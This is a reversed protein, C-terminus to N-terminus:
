CKAAKEDRNLFRFKTRSFIIHHNRDLLTEPDINELFGYEDIKDKFQYIYNNDLGYHSIVDYFILALEENSMQAQLFNLYRHIHKNNNESDKWQEIVFNILNFIYRYYYGINAGKEKVYNEYLGGVYSEIKDLEVTNKTTQSLYQLVEQQEESDKLKIYKHKLGEYFDKLSKMENNTSQSIEKNVNERVQYLMSLLNFFTSEFRDKDFDKQSEIFQKRQEKFTIFLFLTSAFSLCIGITGAALDGISSKMQEFLVKETQQYSSIHMVAIIIFYFSVIVALITAIYAIVMIGNFRNKTKM